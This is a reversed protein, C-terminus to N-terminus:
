TDEVGTKAPFKIKTVKRGHLLKTTVLWNYTNSFVPTGPYFGGGLELDSTVKECEGATIRVSCPFLCSTTWQLVKSWVTM